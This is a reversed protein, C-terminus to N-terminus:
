LEIEGELEETVAGLDAVGFACLLLMENGADPITCHPVGAPIVYLDGARVHTTAGDLWATGAGELVHIVEVCGPHRHPSRPGPRLRSYRVSLAGAEHGELPDAVRRGPAERFPLADARVLHV